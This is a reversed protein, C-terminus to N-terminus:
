RKKRKKKVQHKYVVDEKKSKHAKIIIYLIIVIFVGICIFIIGKDKESFKKEEKVEEKKEDSYKQLIIEGDKSLSYAERAYKALYEPDELRKTENSLTQEEKQLTKLESSLSKEQRKLSYIKYSYNVACFIFYGIIVLCITKLLLKSARRKTKKRKTM